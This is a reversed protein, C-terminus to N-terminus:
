SATWQIKVAAASGGDDDANGDGNEAIQRVTAESDVGDRGRTAGDGEALRECADHSGGITIAMM